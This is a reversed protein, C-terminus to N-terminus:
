LILPSINKKRKMEERRAIICRKYRRIKVAESSILKRPSDGHFNHMFKGTTRARKVANRYTYLISPTVTTYCYITTYHYLDRVRMAEYLDGFLQPFRFFFFISFFLFIFCQWLTCFLLPPFFFIITIRYQFIKNWIPIVQLSLITLYSLSFYHPCHLSIFSSLSFFELKVKKKEKKWRLLSPYFFLLLECYVLTVNKVM